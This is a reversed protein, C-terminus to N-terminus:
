LLHLMDKLCDCRFHFLSFSDHFRHETCVNDQEVQFMSTFCKDTNIQLTWKKLSPIVHVHLIKNWEQLMSHQPVIDISLPCSLLNEEVEWCFLDYHLMHAKSPCIWQQGPPCTKQQLQAKTPYYHNRPVNLDLHHLHKWISLKMPNLHMTQFLYTYILTLMQRAAYTVTSCGQDAIQSTSPRASKRTM